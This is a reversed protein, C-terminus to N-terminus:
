PQFYGSETPGTTRTAIGDRRRPAARARPRCGLTSGTQITRGVQWHLRDGKLRPRVCPRIHADLIRCLRDYDSITGIGAAKRPEDGVLLLDQAELRLRCASSVYYIAAADGAQRLHHFEELGVTSLVDGSRQGSRERFSMAHCYPGTETM